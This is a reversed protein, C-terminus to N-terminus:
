YIYVPTGVRSANYVVELDEDDLRVCGHTVSMGLTRRFLTGHILYGNGFSMAYLGLAGADYREPAGKPPVPEGEEIFAWDPKIWIPNEQKGLVRFRGRPTQFFWRRGDPSELLKYSGTSCVAERLVDTGKKLYLRNQSTDVLIYPDKPMRGNLRRGFKERDKTLQKVERVLTDPSSPPPPAVAVPHWEVTASRTLFFVAVALSALLAFLVILVVALWPSRRSPPERSPTLVGGVVPTDEAM